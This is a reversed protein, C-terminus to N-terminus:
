AAAFYPSGGYGDLITKWQGGIRAELFPRRIGCDNHSKSKVFGGTGRDNEDYGFGVHLTGRIKELTLTDTTKGLSLGDVLGIGLEGPHVAFEDKRFEELLAAMRKKALHPNYVVFDVLDVKGKSISVSFKQARPLVKGLTFADFQIAGEMLKYDELSHAFSTFIEGPPNGWGGKPQGQEDLPSYRKILGISPVWRLASNVSYEMLSDGSDIRIKTAQDLDRKMALATGEVEAPDIALIAEATEQQTFPFQLVYAKQPLLLDLTVPRRIAAYRADTGLMNIANRQLPNTTNFRTEDTLAALVKENTEHERRLKDVDHISTLINRKAAQLAIAGALGKKFSNDGDYIVVLENGSHLQGGIDLCRLANVALEQIDTTM